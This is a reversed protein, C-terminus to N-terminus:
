AVIELLPITPIAGARFTAMSAEIRDADFRVPVHFEYGATVIVGAAPAVALTVAGTSSDVEFAGGALTVGDVAVAVSGAAPKVIPRLYADDGDGYTKTLQFQTASGDGVGIVQDGAAVADGPRCSRMDFPDRFRFGHLSGRRAEFFAMVEYLDEVSRLGTGADYRRMAHASRANRKERGSMLRVIENRREPGGTAGFSVAIPFLVDHFANTM